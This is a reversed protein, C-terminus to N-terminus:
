SLWCVGSHFILDGYHAGIEDLLYKFLTCQLPRAYILNVIKQVVTMVHQFNIMNICLAQQHIVCHYSFFDPFTPGKKRLEVLGVNESITAPAGDTTFSVLKHIHVNM